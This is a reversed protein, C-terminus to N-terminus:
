LIDNITQLLHSGIIPKVIYTKFGTESIVIENTPINPNTLAIIKSSPASKRVEILINYDSERQMEFNLIILHYNNQICLTTADKINNATHITANTNGLIQQILLANIETNYIILIQKDTLDPTTYDKLVIDSVKIVDNNQTYPIYFSFTSGSQPSSNVWIEGGLLTSLQQSIALGLGTGGFKRTHSDDAQRFRNFIIKQQQPSIGIGTDTVDFIIANDKQQYSITISGTEPTFKIANEILNNLIQKLRVPDTYVISADDPLGKIFILTLNEKERQKKTRNFTHELEDFLSNLSCNTKSLNLKGSEIKSTDIIDNILQLLIDSSNKIHEFFEKRVETPLSDDQLLESFGMIANMPTRIEHSMNALFASKLRDSEEAKLLAKKLEQEKQVRIDIMENAVVAMDYFEAFNQLATNIRISKNSAEKFFTKFRNFHMTMKKSIFKASIYFTTNTILIIIIIQLIHFIIEDSLKKRATKIKMKIDKHNFGSGITWNWEKIHKIYATRYLSDVAEYEFFREKNEPSLKELKDLMKVLHKNKFHKYNEGELSPDQSNYMCIHKSNYISLNKNQLIEKIKKLAENQLEETIDDIFAFTGMYWNYPAFKKIYSVKLQNKKPYRTFAEDQHLMKNIENQVIYNGDRDKFNYLNEGISKHKLTGEPYFVSIGNLNIIFIYRRKNDVRLPDIAMFIREQIEKDSLKGKNKNYINLAISHAQDVLQKIKQKLKDEAHLKQYEIFTCATNVNQFIVAKEKDRLNQESFEAKENFESVKSYIWIAGIAIM